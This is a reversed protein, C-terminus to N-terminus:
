RELVEKLITKIEKVDSCKLAKELLKKHEYIHLKTELSDLKEETSKISRGIYSKSVDLEDAIEQLTLNEEYYLSFIRQSNSSLLSHYIELLNGYYIFKEM